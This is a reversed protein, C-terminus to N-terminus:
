PRHNAGLAELARLAADHLRGNSALVGLNATLARGRGFDLPEGRLDTVKGGAEEVVISGAAQDWAKECYDPRAPSLLRFLLEAEGLALRAYKAQSDMRVPPTECGLRRALEDLLREDTHGAEFSRLLRAKQPRAEPSVALRHWDDSELPTIWAGESRVALVISGASGGPAALRPCGLGGLVVRGSEIWALAVVYHDNRLFGKTGDVPDLVWCARESSTRGLDIWRYIEDLPAAPRFRRVHDQVLGAMSPLGARLARSDEEAMLSEGPFSTELMGGILAQVAYDAVTVPSRDTKAAAPIVREQQISRALLTAARLAQLAFQARDVPGAFPLSTHPM